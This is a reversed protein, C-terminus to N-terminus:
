VDSRVEAPIEVELAVVDRMQELEKVRETVWKLDFRLQALCSALAGVTELSPREADDVISPAFGLDVVRGIADRLGEIQWMAGGDRGICGAVADFEVLSPWTKAETTM